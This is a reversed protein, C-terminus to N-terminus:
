VINAIPNILAYTVFSCHVRAQLIADKTVKNVRMSIQESPPKKLSDLERFRKVLLFLRLDKKLITSLYYSRLFSLHFAVMGQM